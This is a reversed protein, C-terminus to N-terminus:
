PKMQLVSIIVIVLGINKRQVGLTSIPYSVIANDGICAEAVRNRVIKASKWGCSQTRLRFVDIGIKMDTDTTYVV